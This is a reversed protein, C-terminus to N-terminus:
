INIYQAGQTKGRIPLTTYYDDPRSKKKPYFFM